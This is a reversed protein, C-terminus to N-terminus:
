EWFTHLVLELDATCSTDNLVNILYAQSSDIYPNGSDEYEVYIIRLPLIKGFDAHEPDIVRSFCMRGPESSIAKQGTKPHTPTTIKRDPDIEGRNLQARLQAVEELTVPYAAFQRTEDEDPVSVVYTDAIRYGNVTKYYAKSGNEHQLYEEYTFCGLEEALDGQREWVNRTWCIPAPYFRVMSIKRDPDPLGDGEFFEWRVVSYTLARYEVSGGDHLNKPIPCFLILATLVCAAIIGTKRNIFKPHAVAWRNWKEVLRHFISKM